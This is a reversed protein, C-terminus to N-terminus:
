AALPETQEQPPAAPTPRRQALRCRLKRLLLILGVVGAVARPDPIAATKLAALMQRRQAATGFTELMINPAAQPPPPTEPGYWGARAPPFPEPPPGAQEVVKRIDPQVPTADGQGVAVALLFCVTLAFVLLVRKLLRKGTM